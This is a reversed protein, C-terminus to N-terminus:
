LRCDVSGNCQRVVDDIAAAVYDLNNSNLGCMSIRGNKLLYIHYKNTLVECQQATFHVHNGELLLYGLKGSLGSFSFMGIQTVIHEWTGPTGKTRLRQYLEQRARKIRSSM